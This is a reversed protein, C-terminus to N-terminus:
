NVSFFEKISFTHVVKAVSSTYIVQKNTSDGWINDEPVKYEKICFGTEHLMKLEPKSFWKKAQTKHKFGCQHYLTNIFLGEVDPIPHSADCHDRQMRDLRDYMEVSGQIPSKCAYSHEGKYRYPGSGCSKCEVRLFKVYKTM